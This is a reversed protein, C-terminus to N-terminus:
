GLWWRLRAGLLLGDCLAAPPAGPTARAGSFHGAILIGALLIACLLNGIKM